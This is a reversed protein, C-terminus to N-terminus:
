VTAVHAVIEAISEEGARCPFNFFGHPADEYVVLKTPLSESERHAALRRAQEVPVLGDDTGHLLLTPTKPQPEGRPSRAHWVSRDGTGFLVRPLASALPGELHDLEYLGFGCVLRHLSSEVRRAGLMALTGGASLGLLSVRAPDLGHRPAREGWHEFAAVVDDLAEDLRGGRFIMRYDIAVSAVGARSLQAALHRMPLMDRSGIVFGGGHVLVVSAGNPERPVYVDALPAIGRGATRRYRVARETPEVPEFFTGGRLTWLAHVLAEYRLTGSRAASSM